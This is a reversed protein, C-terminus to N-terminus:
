QAQARNRLQQLARALIQDAQAEGRRERLTQWHRDALESQTEKCGSADNGCEPEAGSTRERVCAPNVDSAPSAASAHSVEASANPVEASSHSVEASAHSVEATGSGARSRSALQFCTACDVTSPVSFLADARYRVTTM